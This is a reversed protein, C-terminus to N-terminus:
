KPKSNIMSDFFEILFQLAKQSELSRLSGIPQKQLGAKVLDEIIIAYAERVQRVKEGGDNFPSPTKGLDECAFMAFKITGRLTFAIAVNKDSNSDMINLWSNKELM